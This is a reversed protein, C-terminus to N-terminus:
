CLMKLSFRKPKTMHTKKLSSQLLLSVMKSSNRNLGVFDLLSSNRFDKRDMRCGSGPYVVLWQGDPQLGSPSLLSLMARPLLKSGAQCGHLNWAGSRRSNEILIMVWIRCAEEEVKPKINKLHWYRYGLCLQGLWRSMRGRFQLLQATSPKVLNQAFM